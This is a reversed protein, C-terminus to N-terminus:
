RGTPRSGGTSRSAMSDLWLPFYVHIIHEVLRRMRLLKSTKQLRRQTLKRKRRDIFSTFSFTIRTASIQDVCKLLVTSIRIGVCGRGNGFCRSSDIARAAPLQFRKTCVRKLIEVAINLAPSDRQAQDLLPQIALWFSHTNCSFMPITEVHTISGIWSKTKEYM